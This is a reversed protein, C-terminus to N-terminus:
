QLLWHPVGATAGGAATIAAALTLRIIKSTSINNM